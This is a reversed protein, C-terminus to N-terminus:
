VALIRIGRADWERARTAWDPNKGAWFEELFQLVTVFHSSGMEKIIM